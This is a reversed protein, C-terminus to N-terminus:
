FRRCLEKGETLPYEWVGVGEEKNKCVVSTLELLMKRLFEATQMNRMIVGIWSSGLHISVKFSEVPRNLFFKHIVMNRKQFIRIDEIAGEHVVKDEVVRLADMM